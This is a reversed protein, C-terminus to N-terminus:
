QARNRAQRYRWLYLGAGIIIAAGLLSLLDPWDGFWAMGILLAVIIQVYVTPAIEAASARTTGLYVLWHSASATVAVLACKWIVAWDPAAIRLPEFGSLHGAITGAILFPVAFAAIWFQMQLASGAGAVRRNGIMVFAMGVAAVVPLLAPWGLALFNPRLVLLVGTFAIITVIWTVRGAREGLLWASLLATIMPNTFQIATADALSMLFISSFFAMTAIAVAFGRLLQIKPMPMRFGEKGEICFLLMGLGAAGLCYRLAAVATGPWMGAISKIIADGVSLFAFGALAIAMGQRVNNKM